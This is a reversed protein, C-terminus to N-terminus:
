EREPVWVFDVDGRRREGREARGGKPLLGDGDCVVQKAAVLERGFGDGFERGGLLVQFVRFFGVRYERKELLATERPGVHLLEDLAAGENERCIKVAGDLGLDLKKLIEAEGGGVNGLDNRSVGQIREILVSLRIPGDNKAGFRTKPESGPTDLTKFSDPLNNCYSKSLVMIGLM